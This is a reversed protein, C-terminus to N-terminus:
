FFSMEGHTYDSLTEPLPISFRDAQVTAITM